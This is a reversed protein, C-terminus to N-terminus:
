IIGSRRRQSLMEEEVREMIRDSMEDVDFDGMYSQIMRMVDERTLGRKRSAVVEKKIPPEHFKPEAHPEKYTRVQSKVPKQEKKPSADSEEKIKKILDIPKKYIVENRQVKRYVNELSSVKQRNLLVREEINEGLNNFYLRQSEEIERYLTKEKVLTKKFERIKPSLISSFKEYIDNKIIKVNKIRERSILPTKFLKESKNKVQSLVKEDIFSKKVHKVQKTTLVKNIIDQSTTRILLDIDSQNIVPPKKTLITKTKEINLNTFQEEKFVDIINKNIIQKETLRNIKDKYLKQTELFVNKKEKARINLTSSYIKKLVSTLNKQNLINLDKDIRNIVTEKKIVLETKDVINKQSILKEDTIRRETIKKAFNEKQQLQRKVLNEKNLLTTIDTVKIKKYIHATKPAAKEYENIISENYIQPVNKVRTEVNYKNIKQRKVQKELEIKSIKKYTEQIQDEIEQFKLTKETKRGILSTNEIIRESIKQLSFSHLINKNLTRNQIEKNRVKFKETNIVNILQNKIKSTSFIYSAINNLTKQKNYKEETIDATRIYNNLLFSKSFIRKISKEKINESIVKNYASLIEKKVFINKFINEVASSALHVKRNVNTRFEKDLVKLESRKVRQDDQKEETERVNYTKLFRFETKSRKFLVRNESIKNLNEHKKKTEEHIFYGLNRSEVKKKLELGTLKVKFLDTYRNLINREKLVNKILETRKLFQRQELSRNVTNQLTTRQEKEPKAEQHKEDEQVRLPKKINILQRKPFSEKLIEKGSVAKIVSTYKNKLNILNNYNKVINSFIKQNENSTRVRYKSKLSEQDESKKKSEELLSKLLENLTKEDFLNNSVLELKQVQGQTLNNRVNLIENKLQQLINQRVVTNNQFFGNQEDQTARLQMLLDIISQLVEQIYNDKKYINYILARGNIDNRSEDDVITTMPPRNILVSCFASNNKMWQTHGSFGLAPVIGNTIKINESM